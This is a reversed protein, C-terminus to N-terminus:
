LALNFFDGSKAHETLIQAYFERKEQRTPARFLHRLHFNRFQKKYLYKLSPFQYEGNAFVVFNLENGGSVERLDFFDRGKQFRYIYACSSDGGKEYFYRYSFGREMFYAFASKMEKEIALENNNM